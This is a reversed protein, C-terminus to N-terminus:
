TLLYMLMLINVINFTLSIILLIILVVFYSNNKEINLEKYIVEYKNKIEEYLEDLELVDKLTKYYKTGTDYLTVEKEWLLKTFDIFDKRLNSIKEYQKFDANLKSLFIRQYLAMIYTYFYENEYEFPLKTYNYTDVGSCILTSALKTIAIKYYKFKDIVSLNEEINEKNFDSSYNCPHVNAYRYFDAPMNELDTKDNWHESELCAYSFTYFRESTINSKQNVNKKKIIGTIQGILESIDSVDKFTNTQIRINDFNKLHKFDSNIDKFKYNFDLVDSFDNTGELNTKITFFCIGTNFCIIEIKEINFFIGSEENDVKGKVTEALNYIFCSCTQKAILKSQTEKPLSKFDKLKEDRLEFTPFIYNRYNPLFYKYIGMDKEKEFLKFTCRKDKLLKLIYKDYKSKDVIYPYIFYTYQYKTKLGM